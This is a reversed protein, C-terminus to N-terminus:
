QKTVRSRYTSEKYDAWIRAKCQRRVVDNRGATPTIVRRIEGQRIIETVSHRRRVDDWWEDYATQPWNGRDGRLERGTKFAASVVKGKDGAGQVCIQRSGVRCYCDIYVIICREAGGGEELGLFFRRQRGARDICHQTKDAHDGGGDTNGVARMRGIASCQKTVGTQAGRLCARTTEGTKGTDDAIGVSLTVLDVYGLCM